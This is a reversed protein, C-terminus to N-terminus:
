FHTKTTLASSVDRTVRLAGNVYVRVETVPIWPATAVVIKLASTSDVEFPKQVDPGQAVGAADDITAVLVPGNTGIMHGARVDADFKERDFTAREQDAFVLNRPYGVREISLTHSDSNAAGARLFGQSLLSFWLTRYRLWDRPSAGTMVEQVDFDINRLHQGP